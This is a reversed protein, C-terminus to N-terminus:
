YSAILKKANNYVIKKKAKTKRKRPIFKRFEELRQKFPALDNNYKWLLSDHTYKGVNKVEIFSYKNSCFPSSEDTTLPAEKKIKVPEEKEYHNFVLVKTSNKLLM